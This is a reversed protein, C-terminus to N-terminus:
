NVLFPDADQYAGDQFPNVNQKLFPIEDDELVLLARLLVYSRATNEPFRCNDQRVVEPDLYPLRVTRWKKNSRGRM